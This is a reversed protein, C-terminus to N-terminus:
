WPVPDGKWDFFGGNSLPTLKDIVNLINQAAHTPSVANTKSNIFPASLGTSVTGPHLAVCVAESRNRALELASTRMFQNLAAKSSRYGYWGGSFNDGISGVRASLTAFM